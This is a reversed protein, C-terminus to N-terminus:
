PTESQTGPIILQQGARVRKSTGLKNAELIKEVTTGYDKAIQTLYEGSEVTHTFQVTPPLIDPVVDKYIRFAIWDEM